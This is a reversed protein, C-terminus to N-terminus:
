GYGRRLAKRISTETDSVLTSPTPNREGASLGTMIADKKELCVSVGCDLLNLTGGASSKCPPSLTKSVEFVVEAGLAQGSWL